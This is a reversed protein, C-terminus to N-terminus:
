SFWERWVKLIEHLPNQSLQKTDICVDIIRVKMLNHSEVFLSMEVSTELM